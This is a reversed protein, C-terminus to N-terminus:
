LFTIYVTIESKGSAKLVKLYNSMQCKRKERKLCSQVTNRQKAQFEVEKAHTIQIEKAIPPIYNQTNM